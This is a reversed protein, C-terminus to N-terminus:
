HPPPPPTAHLLERLLQLAQPNDLLGAPLGPSSAGAPRPPTYALEPSTAPQLPVAAPTPTGFREWLLKLVVGGILALIHYMDLPPM